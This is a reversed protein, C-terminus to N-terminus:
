GRKRPRYAVLEFWPISDNLVQTKLLVEFHPFPEGPSLGLKQRLQRISDESTVFRAGAETSIVDSGSIVLTNGTRKPNPLFAVRCYGTRRWVARYDAAEGPLPARNVFRVAAPKEQYDTQFNMQSEFLSVWPNSRLSGLLITNQSSVLASSSDRASVLNLSLHQSAAVQGFDRGALVDSVSTAVRNVVEHALARQAADPIYREALADFEHTEYESVPITRGILNEFVMLNVDALVACTTQGNGFLQRWLDNVSRNVAPQRFSASLWWAAAMLLLGSSMGLWFAARSQRPAPAPQAPLDPAPASPGELLGARPRFVPAYNGKPIEIVVPEERGEESFYEQLKKRLQSVQVRVLTDHSTDYDASRGFVDVGIEQERLIYAPDQLGRDGLYLLLERLRKSKQFRPAAAVRHLLGRWETPPTAASGASQNM